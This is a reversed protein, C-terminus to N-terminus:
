VCLECEREYTDKEAPQRMLFAHGKQGEIMNGECWEWATEAVTEKGRAHQRPKYRITKMKVEQFYSSTVYQVECMKLLLSNSECPVVFVLLNM